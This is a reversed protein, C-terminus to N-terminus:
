KTVVLQGRFMRMACSYEYTGEKNPIFEAIKEEGNKSLLNVGFDRIVLQRGCAADPDATFHMRVPIGKKVVIQNKDYLGTNLARLYIDQVQVNSASTQSSIEQSSDSSQANSTCGSILFFVVLVIGVLLFRNKVVNDIM